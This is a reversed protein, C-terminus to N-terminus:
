EFEAWHHCSSVGAVCGSENTHMIFWVATAMVDGSCGKGAEVYSKVDCGPVAGAWEVSVDSPRPGVNYWICVHEFGM